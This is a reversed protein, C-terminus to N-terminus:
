ARLLGTLMLPSLRGRAEGDRRDVAVQVGELEEAPLYAVDVLLDPGERVRVPVGLEEHSYRAHPMARGEQDGALVTAM